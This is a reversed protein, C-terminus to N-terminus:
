RKGETKRGGRGERDGGGMEEEEERAKEEKKRKGKEEGKMGKIKETDKECQPGRGSQLTCLCCLCSKGNSNRTPILPVTDRSKQCKM